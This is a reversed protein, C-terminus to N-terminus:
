FLKKTRPITLRRRIPHAELESEVLAAFVLAGAVMEDVGSTLDIGTAITSSPQPTLRFSDELAFSTLPIISTLQYVFFYEPFCIFHPSYEKMEKFESKSIPIGLSKQYMIIKIKKM